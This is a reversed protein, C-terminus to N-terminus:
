KLKEGLLESTFNLYDAAGNSKPSYRFIDEGQTPAEALAINSRIRTSFVKCGDFGQFAEEIKRKEEAPKEAQMAAEIAQLAKDRKEESPYRKIFQMGGTSKAKFAIAPSHGSAVAKPTIIEEDPFFIAGDQCQICIM